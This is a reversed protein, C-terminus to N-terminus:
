DELLYKGKQIYSNIIKRAAVEAVLQNDLIMEEKKELAKLTKRDWSFRNLAFSLSYCGGARPLLYAVLGCKPSSVQLALVGSGWASALQTTFEMVM